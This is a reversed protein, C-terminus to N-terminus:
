RCFPEAVFAASSSRVALGTFVFTRVIRYITSKPYRTRKHIQEVIFGDKRENLIQLIIISKWLIPVVYERDCIPLKNRKRSPGLSSMGDGSQISPGTM